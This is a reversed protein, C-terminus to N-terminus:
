ADIPAVSGSKPSIDVLGIQRISKSVLVLKSPKAQWNGNRRIYANILENTARIASLDRYVDGLLVALVEPIAESAAM